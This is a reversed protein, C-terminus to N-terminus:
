LSHSTWTNTQPQESPKISKVKEFMIILIIVFLWVSAFIMMPWETVFINFLTHVIIAFFLGITVNVKAHIGPKYFSFAIFIGVIASSVTHLLSAGIFRLTGNTFAGISNEIFRPDLLYYFNELAAFGLATIIMYIVADIPEDDDISRLAVFYCVAYKAIEEIAAMFGIDTINRYSGDFFNSGRFEMFYSQAYYAIYICVMGGIFAEIIRKKPEPHKVDERLWFFLWIFIPIFGGIIAIVIRNIDM